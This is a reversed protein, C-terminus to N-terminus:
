RRTTTPGSLYGQSESTPAGSQFHKGSDRGARGEETRSTKVSSLNLPHRGEIRHLALAM